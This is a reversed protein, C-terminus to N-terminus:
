KKKKKKKGKFSDRTLGVVRLLTPIDPRFVLRWAELGTMRSANGAWSGVNDMLEYLEEKTAGAQHAAHVHIVIMPIPHRLAVYVALRLLESVKREELSQKSVRKEWRDNRTKLEDLDVAACFDHYGVRFGCIKTVRKLEAQIEKKSPM